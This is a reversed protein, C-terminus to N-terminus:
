TMKYSFDYYTWGCKDLALYKEIQTKSKNSLDSIRGKNLVYPNIYRVKSKTYVSYKDSIKTECKFVEKANQFNKFEEKIDSNDCTQIKTVVEEESLTYLDDINLYGFHIMKKTIDALFQMVTRDSDDIWSPWLTSIIDIYEEAISLDKFVLEDIGLENKSVKINEYIRKIKDLSWVRKFTLGSSFTYELRDASLNPTGNDAIPYIKYDSVEDLSINDRKLLENIEVSNKLIEYTREETSEQTESDGNFFDICHKFVPSAIDHFLGALTQKKDKTFNWIILAVGISHTLNSCFYEPNYVGSYDTGCSISIKDIRQMEKTNIYDDIWSPYDECLISLYKKMEDNM